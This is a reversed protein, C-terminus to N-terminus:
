RNRAATNEAVFRAHFMEGHVCLRKNAGTRGAPEKQKEIAKTKEVKVYSSKCSWGGSSCSTLLVGGTLALVLRAKKM